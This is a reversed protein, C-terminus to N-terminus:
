LLVRLASLGVEILDIGGAGDFERRRKALEREVNAIAILADGSMPQPTTRKTEAAQLQRLAHDVADPDLLM